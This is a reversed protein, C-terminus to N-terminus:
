VTQGNPVWLRGWQYISKKLIGTTNTLGSYFNNLANWEAPSLQYPKDDKPWLLLYGNGLDVSGRPDKQVHDLTPWMTVVTNVEAVKRAQKALNAFPNSPQKILSGFHGIVREM